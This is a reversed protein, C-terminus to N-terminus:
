VSKSLKEFMEPKFYKMVEMKEICKIAKLEHESHYVNKTCKFFFLSLMSKIVNSLLYRSTILVFNTSNHM